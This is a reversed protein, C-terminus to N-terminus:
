HEEATDVRLSREEAGGDNKQLCLRTFLTSGFLLFLISFLIPLIPIRQILLCPLDLQPAWHLQRPLSSVAVVMVFLHAQQSCSARGRM